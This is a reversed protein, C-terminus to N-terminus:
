NLCFYLDRISFDILGCYVLTNQMVKFSDWVEKEKRIRARIKQSLNTKLTSYLEESIPRASIWESGYTELNALKNQRNLQIPLFEITENHLIENVSLNFLEASKANLLVFHYRRNSLDM